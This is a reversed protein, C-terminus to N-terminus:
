NNKIECIIPYKKDNPVDDVQIIKKKKVLRFFYDDRNNDKKSVGGYLEEIEKNELERGDLTMPRANTSRPLNIRM